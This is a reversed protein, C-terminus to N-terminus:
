DPARRIWDWCIWRLVMAWFYIASHSFYAGDTMLGHCHDNRLNAGLREVLLARFDFVINEDITKHELSMDILKDLLLENEIGDKDLGTTIVNKEKLRVRLLHEIQPVLIATSTLFDGQFGALLGMKISHERGLPVIPNDKVLWEIGRQSLYHHQNIWELAPTIQGQVILQRRLDTHRMMQGWLRVDDIGMSAKSSEDRAVVRGSADLHQTDFFRTLVSGKLVEASADKIAKFDAPQVLKALELISKCPDENSVSQISIRVLESIDSGASRVPMMRDVVLSRLEVLEQRIKEIQSVIAPNDRYGPIRKLAQVANELFHSRSLPHHDGQTACADAEAIHTQAARQLTELQLEKKGARQYLHAQMELVRRALHLPQIAALDGIGHEIQTLLEDASFLRNSVAFDVVSILADAAKNAMAENLFAEVADKSKPLMLGSEGLQLSIQTGRILRDARADPYISSAWNSTYKLYDDIAREAATRDRARLWLVDWLRATMDPHGETEAYHRVIQLHESELDEPLTTRRGSWVGVPKFPGDHTEPELMMNCIHFLLMLADREPGEPLSSAEKSLQASYEDVSDGEACDLISSLDPLDRM